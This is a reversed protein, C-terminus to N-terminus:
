LFLIDKDSGAKLSSLLFQWAYQHTRGADRRFETGLTGTSVKADGVKVDPLGYARVFAAEFGFNRAYIIAEKRYQPFHGM